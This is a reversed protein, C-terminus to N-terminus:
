LYPHRDENPIIRLGKDSMFDIFGKVLENMGGDEERYKDANDLCFCLFAKLCLELERRTMNVEVANSNFMKKMYEKQKM